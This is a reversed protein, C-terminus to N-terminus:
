LTCYKGEPDDAPLVTTPVGKAGAYFVVIEAPGDLAIGRHVTRMVELVSDGQGLVAIEGTKTEVKVSGQLVYGMTPIPHCHFPAAKGEDLKLVVSTVEASGTPYEIGGGDWSESTKLLPEAVAFVPLIILPLFLNKVTM